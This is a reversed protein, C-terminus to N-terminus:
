AKKSVHPRVNDQQFTIGYISDGALADLYPLNNHLIDIYMDSNVTDNIFAIPGLKNGVFCGWIM